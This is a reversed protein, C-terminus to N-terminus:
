RGRDRWSLLGQHFYRAFARITEELPQAPTRQKLLDAIERVTRKGDVLAMIRATDSGIELSEVRGRIREHRLLITRAQQAGLSQQQVLNAGPFHVPVIEPLEAPNLSAARPKQAGQGTKRAATVYCMHNQFSSLPDDRSLDLYTARHADARIVRFGAAEFFAAGETQDFRWLAELTGSPGYNIWVGGESLIRHIEDALSRPDPILDLLFSTVVCDIAGDAFATECADMAVLEVHPSISM